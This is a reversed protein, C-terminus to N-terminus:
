EENVVFIETPPAPTMQAKSRARERVEVFEKDVKPLQEEIKVLAEFYTKLVDATHKPM